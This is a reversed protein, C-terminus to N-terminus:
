PRRQAVVASPQGRAGRDTLRAPVAVWDPRTKGPPRSLSARSATPSPPSATGSWEENDGVRGSSDVEFSTIQGTESVMRLTVTTARPINRAEIAFSVAETADIEVDAPDYFSRPSDPVGVGGVSVVRVSPASEPLTLTGPTSFRTVGGSGTSGNQAFGSEFAEM